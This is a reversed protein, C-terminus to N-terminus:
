RSCFQRWTRRFVEELKATFREEDCLPSAAVADRLERRQDAPRVGSRAFDIALSIYEDGSQAILNPLGATTLLSTSERSAHTAGSLTVVPVGMLLADGTTAASSFPYTDLALDIRNFRALHEARSAADGLLEVRDTAVGRSRLEGRVHAMTPEEDLRDGALLLRSGPVATLIRGWLTLVAPSARFFDCFSAFVFRRRRIREIPPLEEDRLRLCLFSDELRLLSESSFAGSPHGPPDAISDSIRYDIATMGTTDPYGLWTAQVPAPKRAFTLLRNGPSHGALDLLIDIRQERIFNALAEDSLSAVDHWGDVHTRLQALRDGDHGQTLGCHFVVADFRDRDRYELIPLLFRAIPNGRQDASVYGIRLRREPDMDIFHPMADRELAAAHLDNWWRHEDFIEAPEHERAHLAFLRQSHTAASLAPDETPAPRPQSTPPLAAPRWAAIVDKVVDAAEELAAIQGLDIPEAPEPHPLDLSAEVPPPVVVPETAEIREAPEPHPLDLSAEVPPPVIVPEAAESPEILDPIALPEQPEAPLPPSEVEAPPELDLPAETAQASEVAPSPAPVTVEASAILLDERAEAEFRAHELNARADPFDPRLSLAAEFAEIAEENRGLDALIVGLLNHLEAEDEQLLAASRAADLAEEMREAQRMTNALNVYASVDRPSLDLAARYADIADDVRGLGRLVNGRNVRFHAATPDIAIARDILELAPQPHGAQAALVGLFHLADPHDPEHGLVKRYLQEARPLDGQRHLALAETMWQATQTMQDTPEAM